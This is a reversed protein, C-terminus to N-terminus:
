EMDEARLEIETPEGFRCNGCNREEKRGRGDDDKDFHDDFRHRGCAAREPLLVPRM